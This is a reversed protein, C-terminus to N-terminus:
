RGDRWEVCMGGLGVAPKSSALRPRALLHQCRFVRWEDMCAIPGGQLLVAAYPPARAGWPLVHHRVHGGVPLVCASSDAQHVVCMGYAQAM